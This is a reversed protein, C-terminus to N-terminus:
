KATMCRIVAAADAGGADVVFAAGCYLEGQNTDISITQRGPCTSGSKCIEYGHASSAKTYQGFYVSRTTTPYCNITNYGDENTVLTPALGTKFAFAADLYAPGVDECTGADVCVPTKMILGGDENYQPVGGDYYVAQNCTVDNVRVASFTKFSLAVVVAFAVTAVLLFLNITPKM